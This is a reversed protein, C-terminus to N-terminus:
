LPNAFSWIPLQETLGTALVYLKKNFVKCIYYFLRVFVLGILM